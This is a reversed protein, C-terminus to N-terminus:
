GAMRKEASDDGLVLMLEGMAFNYISDIAMRLLGDALDPENMRVLEITRLRREFAADRWPQFRVVDRLAQLFLKIPNSGCEKELVKVQLRIPMSDTIMQDMVSPISEVWDSKPTSCELEHENLNERSDLQAKWFLTKAKGEKTRGFAIENDICYTM